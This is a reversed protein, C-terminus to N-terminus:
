QQHEARWERAMLTAEEIQGHTMRKVLSDRATQAEELGQAIALTFWMHAAAFDQPLVRGDRYMVGLNFQADAHGQDALPQWFQLATAHDGRKTAEVGDEYPGANTSVAFASIALAFFGIGFLTKVRNVRIWKVM